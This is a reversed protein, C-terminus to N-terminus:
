VGWGAKILQEKMRDLQEQSYGMRKLDKTPLAQRGEEQQKRASWRLDEDSPLYTHSKFLLYKQRWSLTKFRRDTPL